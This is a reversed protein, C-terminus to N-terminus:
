FLRFRENTSRKLLNFPLPLGNKIPVIDENIVFNSSVTMPLKLSPKFGFGTTSSISPPKYVLPPPPPPPPLPPQPPSPLNIYKKLFLFPSISSSSLIPKQPYGNSNLYICIDAYLKLVNVTFSNQKMCHILADTFAGMPMKYDSSFSDASTQSDKCGSLCVIFPNKIEKNVNLTKTFGKGNFEFSWQLDGISGSHCSDFILITKCKVNKIINFIDDDTIFGNRQYDIPVIVEDLKDTEEGTRDIIQSGHGSYHIWIESLNGSENVLKTLNLLINLHTPQLNPNNIDDRLQVIDKKLYGYESVLVNSMNVIDDICGNLENPTNKYNIGITLAKKSM